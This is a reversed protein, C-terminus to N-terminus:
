LFNNSRESSVCRVSLSTLAYRTTEAEWYFDSFIRQRCRCDVSSIKYIIVTLALNMLYISRSAKIPKVSLVKALMKHELIM